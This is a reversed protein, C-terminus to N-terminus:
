GPVSPAAPPSSAAGPTAPTLCMTATALQLPPTPLDVVATFRAYASCAAPAFTPRTSRSTHPGLRGVITVGSAGSCCVSSSFSSGSVACPTLNILMPNRLGPM